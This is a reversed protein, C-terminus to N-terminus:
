SNKVPLETGFGFGGCFRETTTFYALSRGVELDCPSNFRSECASGRPPLPATQFVVGM